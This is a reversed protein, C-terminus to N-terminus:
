MGDEPRTGVLRKFIELRVGEHEQCLERLRDHHEIQSAVFGEIDACVDAISMTVPTCRKSSLVASSISPQDRSTVLIHVHPLDLRILDRLLQLIPERQTNDRLEDLGDFILYAFTHSSVRSCDNCPISNQDTSVRTHNLCPQTLICFLMERMQLTTPRSQNVRLCNAYSARLCAPTPGFTFLQALLTKLMSSFLLSPKDAATFYYYAMSYRSPPNVTM